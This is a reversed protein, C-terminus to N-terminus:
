LFFCFFVFALFFNRTFKTVEFHTDFYFHRFNVLKRYLRVEEFAYIGLHMVEKFAHVGRSRGYEAGKFRIYICVHIHM